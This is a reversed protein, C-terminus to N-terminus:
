ADSGAGEAAEPLLGREVLDGRLQGPTEFAIATFGLEAAAAVNPLSDDVFVTEAPNLGTREILVGYIEKEPKILGEAGSVVIEDFWGLFDYQGGAPPFTEASWNTMAYLPLRQGRLEALVDVSGEIPGAFMEDWRRYYAGIEEAYEPYRSALLATGKELARGRDQEAHWERTAVTDLFHDVQAEDAFVKRYLYRPDWDILVGGLDFM